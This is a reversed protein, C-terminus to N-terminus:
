ELQSLYTGALYGGTWAAQFNFGGTVADINICEGMLFLNPILKSQFNKFDIEKLDVGGATVFEEKNTSKGKMSLKSKTLQHALRQILSHPVNAWTEEGDLHAHELLKIWLRKSLTSFPGSSLQKKPNEKKWNELLTFAENEEMEGLWNLLINCEYNLEALKRAGLASLKLIGPGSVGWHTILLPGTTEFDTGQIKSHVLPVSVGQLHNLRSDKINFTFLSPVPQLINHGMKEIMEWIKSSSGTCIAVFDFYSQQGNVFDLIFGKEKRRIDTVGMQTFVEVQKNKAEKLLAQAIDESSDSVPFVRNDGEIKLEVGRREFWDMTDGTCFKHFPGLLEKSGRPYFQILENPDFCAHTVNCRGGGSIRVKQLVDKAKEFIFVKSNSNQAAHIAAFFGSAGGGIIAIRKNAM